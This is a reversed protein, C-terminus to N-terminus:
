DLNPYRTKATRASVKAWRRVQSKQTLAETSSAGEFM